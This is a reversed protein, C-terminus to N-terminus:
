KGNNLFDDGVQKLLKQPNEFLKVGFSELEEKKEKSLNRVIEGGLYFEEGPLDIKGEKDKIRKLVEWNGNEQFGYTDYGAVLSATLRIVISKPAMEYYNRAHGGAVNTLEGISELLVKIWDPKAKCDNGALAFPYQFATHSVEKHLLVSNPQNKWHTNENEKTKANLPSQHFTAEYRYPSLAVSNNIRLVSDRKLTADKRDKPLYKSDAVMYGFIFDDAYKDSNPFEKFEVALQGENHLRTRNSPINKKILIERLANRKAESSFIAFDKGHKSIKQLVTRNEESEGRYNASPAPYTLVTGFLNQISKNEQKSM